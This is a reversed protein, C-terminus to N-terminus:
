KAAWITPAAFPDSDLPTVIVKGDASAAEFYVEGHIKQGKALTSVQDSLPRTQEFTEGDGPQGAQMVDGGPAEYTYDFMETEARGSVGELNVPVRLWKGAKAGPKTCTDPDVTCNEDYAVVHFTAAVPKGVRMRVSGGETKFTQSEGFVL